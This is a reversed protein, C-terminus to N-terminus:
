RPTDLTEERSDSAKGICHLRTSEIGLFLFTSLPLFEVVDFLDLISNTVCIALYLNVIALSTKFIM